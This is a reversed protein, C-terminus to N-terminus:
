STCSGFPSIVTAGHLLRCETTAGSEMAFSWSPNRDNGAPGPGGTFTVNPATTDFTYTNTAAPGVNGAPDTARVSFTYDGDPQGSLSYSKPSTCAAYASVITGGRALQCKTASGAEATFSWSPNSNNSPSAPGTVSPAAPATSDEVYTV